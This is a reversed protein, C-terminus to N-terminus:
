KTEKTLTRFNDCLRRLVSQFVRLEEPSIGELVSDQVRDVSHLIDEAAARGLDTLRYKQKYRRGEREDRYIFGKESLESVNRSVQAKDIEGAAALEGANLGDESRFIQCLCLCTTSKLGYQAMKRSKMYQMSKIVQNISNSFVELRQNRM